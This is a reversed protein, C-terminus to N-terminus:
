MQTYKRPCLRYIDGQDCSGCSTLVTNSPQPPTGSRSDRDQFDAPGDEHTTRSRKCVAHGLRRETYEGGRAELGLAGGHKALRAELLCLAAQRVCAMIRSQLDAELRGQTNPVPPTGLRPASQLHKLSIELYAPQDLIAAPWRTTVRADERRLMNHLVAQRPNLAPWALFAAPRKTLWAVHTAVRVQLRHWATGSRRRPMCFQM